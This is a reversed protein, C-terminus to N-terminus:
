EAGRLKDFHTIEGYLGCGLNEIRFGVVDLCMAGALFPPGTISCGLADFCRWFLVCILFRCSLFCPVGKKRCLVCESELLRFAATM